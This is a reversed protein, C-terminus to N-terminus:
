CPSQVKPRRAFPTAPMGVQRGFSVSLSDPIQTSPLPDRLEGDGLLDPRQAHMPGSGADAATTSSLRALMACLVSASFPEDVAARTSLALM